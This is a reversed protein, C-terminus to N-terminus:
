RSNHIPFSFNLSLPDQLAVYHAVRTEDGTALFLNRASASGFSDEDISAVDEERLLM